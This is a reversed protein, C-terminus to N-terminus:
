WMDPAGAQTAPTVVTCKLEGGSRQRERGLQQEDNLLRTWTETWLLQNGLFRFSFNGLRKLGLSPIPVM